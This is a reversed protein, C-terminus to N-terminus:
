YSFAEPKALLLNQYKTSSGSKTRMIIDEQGVRCSNPINQILNVQHPDNGGRLHLSVTMRQM